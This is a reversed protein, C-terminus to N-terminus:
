IGSLLLQSTSCSLRKNKIAQIFRRRQKVGSLSDRDERGAAAPPPASCQNQVPRKLAPFLSVAAPPPAREVSGDTLMVAEIM